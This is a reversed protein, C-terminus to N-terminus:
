DAEENLLQLVSCAVGLDADTIGKVYGVLPDWVDVSEDGWTYALYAHLDRGGLSVMICKWGRVQRIFLPDVSRFALGYGAAALPFKHTNLPKPYDKLVAEETKGTLMALCTQTCSFEKTQLIMLDKSPKPIRKFKM